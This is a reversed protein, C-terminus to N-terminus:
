RFSEAKGKDTSIVRCRGNLIGGAAAVIDTVLVLSLPNAPAAPTFCQLNLASRMLRTPDEAASRVQASAPVM